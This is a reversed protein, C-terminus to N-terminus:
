YIHIHVNKGYVKRDDSINSAALSSTVSSVSSKSTLDAVVYNHGEDRALDAATDGKNNAGATLSDSYFCM